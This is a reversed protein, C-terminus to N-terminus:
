GLAPIAPANAPAPFLKPDLRTLLQKIKPIEEVAAAEGIAALEKTRVFETLDFETVDPAIMADAPQVGIANLSHNQVLLSRLITQL